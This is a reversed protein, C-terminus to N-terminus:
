SFEKNLFVLVPCVTFSGAIGEQEGCGEPLLIQGVCFSGYFPQNVHQILFRGQQKRLLGNQEQAGIGCELGKKRFFFFFGKGGCVTQM